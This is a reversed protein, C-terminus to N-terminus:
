FSAASKLSLQTRLFEVITSILSRGLNIPVANGIQMAQETTTGHFIYDDPFSQLRAAHRLTIGHNEWPHVFRGKSPNNCGTTITNSPTHFLIRGYVDKHGQHVEHCPLRFDIDTRGGNIPTQAFRQVIKNTHAMHVNCPDDSCIPEGFSLSNVFEIAGDEDVGLLSKYQEVLENLVSQPPREFVSSATKWCKRNLKPNFHTPSPPWTEDPFYIDERVGLIFARKRNQPVGYDRANIILPSDKVIKYRFNRALEFFETLYKEHKKWLLGPVNEVLFFKPKLEGVFDFYRLLLKNRPDAKGTLKLRHSSFGQCPPGGLLLDLEGSSLGQYKMMSRIDVQNVDHNFLYTDIGLKEILNARYTEAAQQNLEVAALVNIGANHASLSFGGAGAFLDIAKFGNNM